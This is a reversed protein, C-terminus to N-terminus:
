QRAGGLPSKEADQKTNIIAERLMKIDSDYVKRSKKLGSTSQSRYISEAQDLLKLAQDLYNRAAMESVMMLAADTDAYLGMAKSYQELAINPQQKAAYIQARLYPLLRIFLPFQNYAANAAMKDILLLTMDQYEPNVDPEVVNEVLSRLGMVAQADFPQHALATGARVFDVQNAQRLFVKQLLLNLTLLASNPLRASADELQKEAELQHGNRSLHLAISNQARPSEPTAYAWYMELKEGNSWLEARQWTLFALVLIISGAAIAAVRVSVKESLYVLASALPLFLLLAALYNRHEFYLELGVVTSETLHAAFFFLIALSWLPWKRRLIFASGALLLLALLSLATTIPAFLSKSISYGDQFLGRGEIRPVWLHYLYETVIRCESLLRQVQNFPRTPWPNASFDVYRLLAVLVVITPLWLFIARWQWIPRKNSPNCFEIVLLLVPLLMGNEKSFTALLTGVCVALTMLVYAKRPESDLLLRGKLYIVMGLLSFLAALQAMRQIIYLTTSVFYPHLLWFMSALVAIWIYQQEPYGYVRLLLLVTWCLLLGCIIHILLNTIKFWPAYSPWTNDDLLFSALAIPRGTPGSFGNLVFSKFTEWDVVGGYIGLDKLNPYDDFLFGGHL